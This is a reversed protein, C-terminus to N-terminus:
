FIEEGKCCLVKIIVCLLNFLKIKSKEEGDIDVNCVCASPNEDWNGKMEREWTPNSSKPRPFDNIFNWTSHSIWWNCM